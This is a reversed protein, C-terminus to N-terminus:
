SARADPDPHRHHQDGRRQRRRRRHVRRVVVGKPVYSVVNSGPSSCRCPARRSARARPSRRAVPTAKFNDTKADSNGFILVKPDSGSITARGVPILWAKYENGANPTEDFPALQVPLTGNAPNFTGNAHKCSPGTSGAVRGGAVTLQRCVADDSSLLKSGSPNTVQFYYTGDPLGAAKQNQPGGSLYVDELASYMNQNVATGDKTTTQIAGSIGGASGVSVLPTGFIVLAAVALAFLNRRRNM